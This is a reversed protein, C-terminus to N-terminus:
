YAIVVSEDVHVQQYVIFAVFSVITQDVILVKRPRLMKKKKSFQDLCFPM